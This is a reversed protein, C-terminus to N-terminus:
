EYKEVVYYCTLVKNRNIFENNIVYDKPNFTTVRSYPFLKWCYNGYVFKQLIVIQENIGIYHRFTVGDVRESRKYAFEKIKHYFSSPYTGLDKHDLHLQEIYQGSIEVTEPKHNKKYDFSLDHSYSEDYFTVLDYRIRDKVYAPQANINHKNHELEYFCLIQEMENDVYGKAYAYESSVGKLTDGAFAANVERGNQTKVYMRRIQFDPHRSDVFYIDEKPFHKEVRERWLVNEEKELLWEWSNDEKFYNPNKWTIVKKKNTKFVDRDRFFRNSLFPITFDNENATPANNSHIFKFCEPSEVSPMRDLITNIYNRLINNEAQTRLEDRKYSLLKKEVVPIM